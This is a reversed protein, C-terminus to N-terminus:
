YMRVCSSNSVAVTIARMSTMKKDVLYITGPSIQKNPFFTIVNPFTIAHKILHTKKSPPGKSKPLFGFIVHTPLKQTVIKGRKKYSYSCEKENITLKQKKNSTIAKQQLFLFVSSINKAEEKLLIKTIFSERRTSMSLIFVLLSIAVIVELLSFGGHLSKEKNFPHLTNRNLATTGKPL